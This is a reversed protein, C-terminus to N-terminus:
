GEHMVLETLFTQFLPTLLFTNSISLLSFPYHIFSRYRM